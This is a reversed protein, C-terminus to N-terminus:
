LRLMADALVTDTASSPLWPVAEFAHRTTERHGPMDALLASRSDDTRVHPM